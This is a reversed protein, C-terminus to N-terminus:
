SKKYNKDNIKVNNINIENNNLNIISIDNIRLIKSQKKMVKKIIIMVKKEAVKKVANKLLRKHDKIFTIM